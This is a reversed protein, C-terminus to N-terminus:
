KDGSKNFACNTLPLLHAKLEKFLKFTQTKDTDLKEILEVILLTKSFVLKRLQPKKSISIMPEEFLIQSVLVEM